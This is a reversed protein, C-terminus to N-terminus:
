GAPPSRRAPRTRPSPSRRAPRRRRAGRRRRPAARSARARPGRARTRAPARAPPPRARAPRLSSSPSPTPPPPTPRSKVWRLQRGGAASGAGSASASRRRRIPAAPPSRSPSRSRRRSPLPTANLMVLGVAILWFSQVVPLPLLQPIVALVGSIIGLIGLFRTLLGVRMANLSILFLGAALALPGLSNILDAAVLLSDQGIERAADVTRAGDLFHSVGSVTRVAGLVSAIALLVAGVLGVYVVPRPLEPRRARTAAGLFTLAWGLALLAIARVVSSGIVTLAHDDYFEFAPTRLSPREGVPGPLFAQTLSELYGSRPSDRLALGIWLYGAMMLLGALIAAAGARPRQRAEWALQQEPEALVAV